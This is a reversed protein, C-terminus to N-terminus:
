GQFNPDFDDPGFMQRIECEGEWGPWHRRHLELFEKAAELAEERSNLNLIAFGGVVEKAESYPGDLVRIDGKELRVRVGAATPALGGTIVLTGDRQSKEILKGMEKMMEPPPYAKVSENSKVMSMFKM